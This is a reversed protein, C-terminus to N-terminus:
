ETQAILKEPRIQESTLQLGTKERYKNEARKKTRSKIECRKMTRSDVESRERPQNDDKDKHVFTLRRPPPIAPPLPPLPTWAAEALEWSLSYIWPRTLTTWPAKYVQFIEMIHPQMKGEVAHGMGQRLTRSTHRLLESLGALQPLLEQYSRGHQLPWLSSALGIRVM